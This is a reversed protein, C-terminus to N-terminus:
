GPLPSWQVSTEEREIRAGAPEGALVTPEHFWGPLGTQPRGGGSVLSAGRELAEAVLAEVRSRQGETVLPGLEVDPADGPGIRLSRARASLRELFPEYLPGEVYVREIGSCM